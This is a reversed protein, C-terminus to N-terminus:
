IKSIFYKGLALYELESNDLTHIADEPSCINPEGHLNFSTNLLAGIGTISKFKTILDYYAPNWEKYVCQPRVTKDRPHIAASIDEQAKKTSNFTICMYPAKIGKPNDIYKEFDDSIISPTFPMWFDRSKITYNIKEIIKISSPNALISRNGLARAGFEMRGDFRGVIKDKSLLNAVEKNIDFPEKIRYRSSDLSNKIFDLIEEDSYEVGLYLNDLPYVRIEPQTHISGLMAAGIATSEDAASPVVYLSKICELEYVKQCAKVNMFVGGSLAVNNIGTQNVWHSIWKEIIEETFHQIAGAVNDFRKYKIIQQLNDWICTPPYKAKLNGRNDVQLLKRLDYLINEYFQYQSYPALGMIKFEHQNSIMGMLSTMTSYFYGLSNRHSEKYITKLYRNLGSGSTADTLKSITACNYDGVADLSFVLCEDLHQINPFASFSHSLHHDHFKIRDSEVKLTKVLYSNIEKSLKSSNETLFKAKMQSLKWYLETKALYNKNYSQSEIKEKYKYSEFNHKKLNLYGHVSKQYINATIIEDPTCINKYIYDLTLYPFGTSNKQRNLREESQCFILRGNKVVAITANHGYHIGLHICKM